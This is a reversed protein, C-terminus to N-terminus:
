SRADYKNVRYTGLCTRSHIHTAEEAATVCIYKSTKRCICTFSARTPMNPSGHGQPYTRGDPLLSVSGRALIELRTDSKPCKATEVYKAATWSALATPHQLLRRLFRYETHLDAGEREEGGALCVADLCLRDSYWAPSGSEPM